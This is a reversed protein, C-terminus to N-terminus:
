RIMLYYNSNASKEAVHKISAFNVYASLDIEGPYELLFDQPVYKHSRIGKEFNIFMVVSVIVRVSNSLAHNEGYDIILAGGNTKSILESISNM